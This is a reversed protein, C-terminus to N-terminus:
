PLTRPIIKMGLIPPYIPPRLTKPVGLSSHFLLPDRLREILCVPNTIGGRREGLPVIVLLVDVAQPALLVARAPYARLDGGSAALTLAGQLEGALHEKHLDRLDRAAAVVLPLAAGGPFLDAAIRRAEVGM